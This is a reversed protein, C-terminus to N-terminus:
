KRGKKRAKRTRAYEIPKHQERYREMERIFRLISGYDIKPTEIM